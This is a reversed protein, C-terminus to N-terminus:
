LMSCNQVLLKLVFLKLTPEVTVQRAASNFTVRNFGAIKQNKQLNLKFPNAKSIM